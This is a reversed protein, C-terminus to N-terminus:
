SSDNYQFYFQLLAFVTLTEFLGCCFFSSALFSIMLSVIWPMCLVLWLVLVLLSRGTILLLLLRQPFQLHPHPPTYAHHLVPTRAAAHSSHPPPLVRTHSLQITWSPLEVNALLMIALSQLLIFTLFMGCAVRDGCAAHMRPALFMGTFHRTLSQVIRANQLVNTPQKAAHKFFYAYLRFSTLFWHSRCWFFSCLILFFSVSNFLDVWEPFTWSIPKRSSPM